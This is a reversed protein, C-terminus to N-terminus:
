LLKINLYTGNGGNVDQGVSSYATLYVKDLNGDLQAFVTGTLTTNSLLNLEHQNIALQSIDMGNDKSVQVNIQGTGGTAPEFNVSYSIQYIGAITPQYYFYESNYWGSPDFEDNNFTISTDSGSGLTQNTLLEVQGFGGNSQISSSVTLSGTINTNRTINMPTAGSTPDFYFAVNDNGNGGINNGIGPGYFAAILTNGTNQFSSWAFGIQGYNTAPDIDIVNVGTYTNSLSGSFLANYNPYHFQDDIASQIQIDPSLLTIYSGSANLSGTINTDGNIHLQSGQGNLMYVDGEGGDDNFHLTGGNLTSFYLAGSPVTSYNFANTDWIIPGNTKISGTVNVYGGEAWLSIDGTSQLIPTDISTTVYLAGSIIQDGIFTNSGTTAFTTTDPSTGSTGSTGSSGTSGSIYSSLATAVNAYTDYTVTGDNAYTMVYSGTTQVIGGQSVNIQDSYFTGTQYISGTVILNGKFDNNDKYWIASGSNDFVAITNGYDPNTSNGGGFFHSYVTYDTLSGSVYNLPTFTDLGIGINASGNIDYVNFASFYVDDVHATSDIAMGMNPFQFPNGETSSVNIDASAFNFTGSIFYISAQSGSPAYVNWSGTGFIFDSIIADSTSRDIKYESRLSILGGNTSEIFISSTAPSGANTGLIYLDDTGVVYGNGATFELSSGTQLGSGSLIIGPNLNVESNSMYVNTGFQIQGGPPSQLHLNEGNNILTLVNTNDLYLSASSFYGHRWPNSPSGLDFSGSGQPIIAGTVYLPGNIAMSGTSLSIPSVTGNGDTVPQLTGSLAQGLGTGMNLVSQYSQSIYQNSLNGM